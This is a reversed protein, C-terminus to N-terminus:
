AILPYTGDSAVGCTGNGGDGRKMYIFGHDGWATGWSNQIKWFLDSGNGGGFGVVVVAHDLETTGCAGLVGSKYFKWEDNGAAVGAVVPQQRVAEQLQNEGKVSIPRQIHTPLKICTSIDCTDNQQLIGSHYPYEKASCVGTLAM